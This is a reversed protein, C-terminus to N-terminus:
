VRRIMLLPRDPVGMARRRVQWFFYTAGVTHRLAFKSNLAHQESPNAFLERPAARDFQPLSFVRKDRKIRQELV